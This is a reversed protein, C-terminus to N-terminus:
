CLHKLVCEEVCELGNFTPKQNRKKVKKHNNSNIYLTLTGTTPVKLSKLIEIKRCESHFREIASFYLQESELNQKTKSIIFM